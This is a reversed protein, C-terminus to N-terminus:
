RVSTLLAEFPEYGRLSAMGPWYHVWLVGGTTRRTLDRLLSVAHERDGRYAAIRAREYIHRGWEHTWEGRALSDEMRNASSTDGEQLALLAAIALWPSEGHAWTRSGVFRAPARRVALYRRALDPRGATLAAAAIGYTPTTDARQGFFDLARLAAARALATDGHLALEVALTAGFDDPRSIEWITEDDPLGRASDLLRLAEVGRGLAAIARARLFLSTVRPPERAAFEQAAALEHGHEGLMHYSRTLDRYYLFKGSDPLWGLDRTRDLHTLIRVAERPRNSCYAWLAVWYRAYGSNPQLRASAIAIRYLEEADGRCYAGSFDLNLRDLPDLRNRLPALAAVISDTTTCTLLPVASSFALWVAATMFASDAMTARRFLMLTASDPGERWFREQGEAFARYAEWSPPSTTSSTFTNFRGDVLTALGAAVRQELRPLAAMPDARAARAPDFSQRLNGTAVDIVEAAFEVSDGVATFSGAIANAARAERALARPDTPRGSDDRGRVYLTGIDGVSVLGTRLLARSIYDAVTLGLADLRPEGTRNEFVAVAVRKPDLYTV